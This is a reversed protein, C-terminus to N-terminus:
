AKYPRSSATPALPERPPSPGAIHTPSAPGWCTDAGEATLQLSQNLAPLALVGSVPTMDKGKLPALIPPHEWHVTMSNVHSKSDDLNPKSVMLLCPKDEWPRKVRDSLRPRRISLFAGSSSPPIRTPNQSGPISPLTVVESHSLPSHEPRRKEEEGRTNDPKGGAIKIPRLYRAFGPLYM